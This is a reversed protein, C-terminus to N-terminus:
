EKKITEEIWEATAPALLIGNRYHGSAVILGKEIEELVPAPRGIPKARLGSWQSLVESERIWDPAIGDLTKMSEFEDKSPTLGAELTAGIILENKQVKILNFNNVSLVGPWNNIMMNDVKIRLAQGLVPEMKISYDIKHLLANTEIAACIIVIDAEIIDENDQQIIWKYKDSSKNRKINMINHSILKVKCNKLAQKLSTQLSIPDIRGDSSSVIGGYNKISLDPFIKKIDESELLHLDNNKKRELLREFVIKEAESKAVKILPKKISLKPDYNNLIKIWEPWIELSRKRMRWGRGSSKTFINGMLVGLSASSGNVPASQSLNDKIKNDLIIIEQDQRSLHWAATLGIIGGGIIVIKQKKLNKM